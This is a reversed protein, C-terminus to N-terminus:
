FQDEPYFVSAGCACGSRRSLVSFCWLCQRSSGTQGVLSDTFCSLMRDLDSTLCKIEIDYTCQITIVGIFRFGPVMPGLPVPNDWDMM